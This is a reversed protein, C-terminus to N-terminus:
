PAPLRALRVVHKLLPATTEFLFEVEEEIVGDDHNACSHQNKGCYDVLRLFMANPSHRGSAPQLSFCRASM